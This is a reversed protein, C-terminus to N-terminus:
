HGTIPVWAQTINTIITTTFQNTCQQWNPLATILDSCRQWDASVGAAINTQAIWSQWKYSNAVADGNLQYSSVHNAIDWAAAYQADTCNTTVTTVINTALVLTFQNVNVWGSGFTPATSDFWRQENGNLFWDAHASATLLIALIIRKM